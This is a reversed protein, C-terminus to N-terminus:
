SDLSIRLPFIHSGSEELLRLLSSRHHKDFCQWLLFLLAISHFQALSPAWGMPFRLLLMSGQPKAKCSSTEWRANGVTRCRSRVFDFALNTCWPNPAKFLHYSTYIRGSVRSQSSGEVLKVGPSPLFEGLNFVALSVM